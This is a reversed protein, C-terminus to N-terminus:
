DVMLTLRDIAGDYPLPFVFSVELAESGTNVFTQAVDVRAVQDALRARVALEKISYSLNGNAQQAGPRPLPM